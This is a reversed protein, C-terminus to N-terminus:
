LLGRQVVWAAIQTRTELGLKGRVNRAHVEATKEAIVLAEAIRRNSYGQGILIAVERERATLTAGRGPSEGPTLRMATAALPSPQPPASLAQHESALVSLRWEGPVGRVALAGREEFTLGSGAVLDRVTGSVLVEDPGAAAGIRAAMQVTIGDIEDDVVDIEGTHLGARARIGLERAADGIARACRVARAPGDFTALTGDGTVRVPHGRFRSLERRARDQYEHLLERWRRDGLMTIHSMADAVGVFMVTSLVRHSDAVHRRGTLFEEIAGIMADQDGLWQHHDDGPMEIYKSGAIHAAIYRAGGVPVVQDGTRHLILTPVRIAPLVHRVDIEVNMRLLALAAGPSAGLRRRTSAWEMFREDGLQNPSFSLLEDVTGWVRMRADFWAEREQPDSPLAEWPYDPVATARAQAGYLVLAVTREPYTAAFLIALSSGESVGMLVARESGVADMVARMDDMRQELTPLETISVRDSLGTGRKDFRILRSFSALREHFRQYAPLEWDYEVHSIWGPVSVLDLPGNGQVQYAIHVDGSRAYQTEPRV